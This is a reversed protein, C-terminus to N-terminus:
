EGDNEGGENEKPQNSQGFSDNSDLVEDQAPTHASKMVSNVM